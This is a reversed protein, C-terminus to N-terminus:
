TTAEFNEEEEARLEGSLDTIPPFYCCILWIENIGSDDENPGTTADENAFMGCIAHDVPCMFAESREWDFKEKREETYVMSSRSTGIPYAPPGAENPEYWVSNNWNPVRCIPTVETIGLAPGGFTAKMGVIFERGDKCWTGYAFSDNNTGAGIWNIPGVSRGGNLSQCGLELRIMGKLLLPLTPHATVCLSISYGLMRFLTFGMCGSATSM